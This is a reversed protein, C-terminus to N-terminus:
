LNIRLIFCVEHRKGEVTSVLVSVRINPNIDRVKYEKKLGKIIYAM